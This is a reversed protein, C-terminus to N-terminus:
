RREGPWGPGLREILEPRRTLLDEVVQLYLQQQKKPIHGQVGGGPQDLRPFWESTVPVAALRRLDM